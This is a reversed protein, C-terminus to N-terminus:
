ESTVTNFFILLLHSVDTSRTQREGTDTICTFPLHVGAQLKAHAEVVTSKIALEVKVSTNLAVTCSGSQIQGLISSGSLQVFAIQFDNRSWRVKRGRLSHFSDSRPNNVVTM